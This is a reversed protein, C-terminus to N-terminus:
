GLNKRWYLSHPFAWPYKPWYLKYGSAILSNASAPNDTTDTLMIKWGFRRGKAERVRILRRQLGQGRHEEVVGSRSLYGGLEQTYAQRMGAFGVPEHETTVLWWWGTEPDIDPATDAFTLKHLHHLTDAIEDDDGDVERIRYSV